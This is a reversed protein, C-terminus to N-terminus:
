STGLSQLVQEAIDILPQSSNGWASKLSNCAITLRQRTMDRAQGAPMYYLISIPKGKDKEVDDLDDAVQFALGLERAFGEIALGPISDELIGALDMPVLLSASFLAGTKLAHMNQLDKLTSESNLLLEAAQGGIVGRPGMATLLRRLARAFSRPAIHPESEAFVDLAVGILADGALLAIAEGFKKHNSPRGRRFDDNDMSPLDDHILTFCHIMEIALAAPNAATYPLKVMEACSLALRPRIRKGPALLSYRISEALNPPTEEPDRLHRELAEKLLSDIDVPFIM